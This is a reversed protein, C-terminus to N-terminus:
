SKVIWAIWGVYHDTVEKMCQHLIRKPRQNGKLILRAGDMNMTINFKISWMILIIRSSEKCETLTNLYECDTDMINKYKLLGPKIHDSAIIM